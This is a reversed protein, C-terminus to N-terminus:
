GNTFIRNGHPVDLHMHTTGYGRLHLKARSFFKRYHRQGHSRWYGTHPRYLRVHLRSSQGMGLVSKGKGRAARNHWAPWRMRRM